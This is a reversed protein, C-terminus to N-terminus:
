GGLVSFRAVVLGAVAVCLLAAVVSMLRTAWTKRGLPQIVQATCLLAITLGGIALGLVDSRIISSASALVIM